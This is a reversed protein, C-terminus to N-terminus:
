EAKGLLLFCDGLLNVQTNSCQQQLDDGVSATLDSTADMHALPVDVQGSDASKAMLHGLQQTHM